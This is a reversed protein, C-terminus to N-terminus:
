DHETNGSPLLLPPSVPPWKNDLMCTRFKMTFSQCHPSSTRFNVSLIATMQTLTKKVQARVVINVARPKAGLYDLVVFGPFQSYM